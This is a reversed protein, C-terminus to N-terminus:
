PMQQGAPKAPNPKLWYMHLVLFWSFDLYLFYGQCSILAPLFSLYVEAEAVAELCYFRWFHFHFLESRRNIFFSSSTSFGGGGAPLVSLIRLNVITFWSPILSPPCETGSFLPRLFVFLLLSSLLRHSYSRRCLPFQLRNGPHHHCISVTGPSSNETASNSRWVCASRFSSISNSGELNHNVFFSVDTIYPRQAIVTITHFFSAM